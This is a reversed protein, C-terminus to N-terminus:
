KYGLIILSPNINWFLLQATWCKSSFTHQSHWETFGHPARVVGYLDNLREILLLRDRDDILICSQTELLPTIKFVIIKSANWLYHQSGTVTFYEYLVYHM